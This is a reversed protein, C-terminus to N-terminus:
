MIGLKRQFPSGHRCLAKGCLFSWYNPNPIDRGDRLVNYKAVLLQRWLSDGGEGNRWLWKGLLAQNISKLPRVGFGGEGKPKCAHAWKVLHYKKKSNSKWGRLEILSWLM